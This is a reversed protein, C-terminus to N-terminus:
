SLPFFNGVWGIFNRMDYDSCIQLFRKCREHQNATVTPGILKSRLVDDILKRQWEACRIFETSTPLASIRWAAHLSEWSDKLKPYKERVAAPLGEFCTCSPDVGDALMKRAGVPGVGQLVKINDSPDGALARYKAWNKPLVGYKKFIEKETLFVYRDGGPNAVRVSPKTLLQFLDADNSYVVTDGLHMHSMIAILDDAELGAVEVQEVGILEMMSVIVPIQGLADVYTSEGSKTRNAKYAPFVIKRWSERFESRLAKSHDGLVGGEWCVIFKAKSFDRRIARFSSLFGYIAGTCRQQEDRLTSHAFHSRFLLNKGDILVVQNM